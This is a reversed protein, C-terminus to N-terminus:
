TSPKGLRVRLMEARIKDATRSAEANLHFTLPLTPTATRQAAFQPHIFYPQVPVNM